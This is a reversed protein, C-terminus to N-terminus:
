VKVFRHSSGMDKDFNSFNTLLERLEMEDRGLPDEHLIEKATLVWTENALYFM